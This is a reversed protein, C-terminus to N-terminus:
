IQIAYLFHLLITCAGLCLLILVLLEFFMQYYKKM